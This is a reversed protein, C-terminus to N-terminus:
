AGSPILLLSNNATPRTVDESTKWLGNWRGRLRKMRIKSLSMDWYGGRKIWLGAIVLREALAKSLAYANPANNEDYRHTNEESTPEQTPMIAEDSSTFVFAKAHSCAKAAELLFTTGDVNTKMLTKRTDMYSPSATHIVAHPKFREFIEEIKDQSALDTPFLSVRTEDSIDVPIKPNRSM